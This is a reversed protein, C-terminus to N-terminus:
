IRRGFLVGAVVIIIVILALAFPACFLAARGAASGPGTPPVVVQQTQAPQTGILGFTATPTFSPEVVVAQQTFTATFVVPPTSTLTPTPTVTPTVTPGGGGDAHAEQVPISALSVALLLMAALVALIRVPKVSVLHSFPLNM